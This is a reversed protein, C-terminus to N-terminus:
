PTEKQILEPIVTSGPKIKQFGNLVIREGDNLGTSILWQNGIAQELQVNKPSVTNKDSIVWVSASGDPNRIVAKQPVLIAPTPPFEMAVNVFLGPLLNRNPNSFLTRLLVSNTTENVTIDTFEIKGEYPYPTKKNELFLSLKADKPQNLLPKLKIFDHIPLTLDVYIPDMQTIIALPTAQNATVLAGKTLESKGIHGSLPAYVKTYDLDIQVNDIAAKAIGVDAKAQALQATIDDYDQQSIFKSKILEEGRKAKLEALQLNAKAKELGAKASKYAAEYPAPNIQYLQDGENVFSGEKFFRQSIIGTVQPRLEAVEFPVIRGPLLKQLEVGQTKLIMASVPVKQIDGPNTTAPPKFYVSRILYFLILLTALALVGILVPRNKSIPLVM